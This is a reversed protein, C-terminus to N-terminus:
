VSARTTVGITKPPVSLFTCHDTDSSVSWIEGCASPVTTTDAFFIVNSVFFLQRVAVADFPICFTNYKLTVGAITSAGVNAPAGTSESGFSPM